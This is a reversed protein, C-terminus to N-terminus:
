QTAKQYIGTVTAGIAGQATGTVAQGVGAEVGYHLRHQGIHGNSIRTQLGEYISVSSNRGSNWGSVRVELLSAAGVGGGIAAAVAINRANMGDTAGTATDIRQAVVERGAGSIVGLAVNNVLPPASSGFVRFGTAGLGGSVVAGVYAGTMGKTGFVGNKAAEMGLNATGGVTASTAYYAAKGMTASVFQEGVMTGLVPAAAGAAGAAAPAALGVFLFKNSM